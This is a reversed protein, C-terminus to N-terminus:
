ELEEEVINETEELGRLVEEIESPDTIAWVGGGKVTDKGRMGVEKGVLNRGVKGPGIGVWRRVKQEQDLYKISDWWQVTEVTQRALQDKLDAKSRFPRATVNSICPIKGPWTVIDEEERGKVRSRGALINHMVSLAPKMIPSHFPSDSKLRVARPDHGLFQRVHEMLTKIRLINGSLVIQNKSNVNAILVQDIPSMVESGPSTPGVFGQIATILPQMYEPESVIAVMGYEGGYEEEAAKTAAAMADARKQVMFLSDEFDIFGSSVLAAFEGLSHGLTFDARESTKFGFEKELVRLIIISTAMIAPQAYPTLNLVKNPGHQIVDCLKYGVINDIEQMIPQVTAPFANLWPTLMEVKQVGQGPFFIATKPRTNTTTSANRSQKTAVRSRSQRSVASSPSHSPALSAAAARACHSSRAHSLLARCPGRLLTTSMPITPM